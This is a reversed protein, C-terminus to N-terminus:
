QHGFKRCDVGVRADTMLKVSTVPGVVLCERIGSRILAFGVTNAADAMGELARFDDGSGKWSRKVDLDAGSSHSSDGSDSDNSACSIYPAKGSAM